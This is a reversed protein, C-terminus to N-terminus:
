ALPRSPSGMASPWFSTTPRQACTKLVSAFPPWTQMRERPLVNNSPSVTDKGVKKKTPSNFGESGFKVSLSNMRQLLFDFERSRRAVAQDLCLGSSQRLASV